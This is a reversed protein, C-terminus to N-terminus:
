PFVSPCLFPSLGILLSVYVISVMISLLSLRLCPEAPCPCRGENEEKVNEKGVFGRQCPAGSAAPYRLCPM